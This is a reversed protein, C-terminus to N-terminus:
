CTPCTSTRPSGRPGPARPRSDKRRVRDTGILTFTKPDKLKPAQPPKVKGADAILEGFGAQKGSAHAVVGNKVTVEGAPVGWKTAAARVFM